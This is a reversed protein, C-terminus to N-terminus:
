PSRTSRCTSANRCTPASPKPMRRAAGSRARVPRLQATASPPEMPAQALHPLYYEASVRKAAGALAADVDGNNRMVEGPKAAAAELTKRYQVSNYSANPGDDWQIELQSRGKIAAFTNEAIVAVGGLPQFVVPPTPPDITVVKLVGPVKMAKAADFSKVKGGFVPPRAVVAYAMGDVRADIGFMAKGTTIDLNDILPVNDKGIYRFQSVGKLVLADSPPM